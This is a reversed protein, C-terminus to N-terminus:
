VFNFISSEKEHFNSNYMSINFGTYLHSINVLNRRIRPNVNQLGETNLSQNLIKKLRQKHADFIFDIKLFTKLSVGDEHLCRRLLNVQIVVSSIRTFLFVLFLLGLPTSNYYNFEKLTQANDNEKTLM